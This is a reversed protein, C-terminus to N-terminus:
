GPASGWPLSGPSRSCYGSCQPERNIDCDRRAHQCRLLLVSKRSKGASETLAAGDRPVHTSIILSTCIPVDCAHRVDGNVARGAHEHDVALLHERDPERVRRRVIRQRRAALVGELLEHVRARRHDACARGLPREHADVMLDRGLLHDLVRGGRVAQVAPHPEARDRVQGTRRGVRLQQGLDDPCELIVRCEAGVLAHVLRAVGEAPRVPDSRCPEDLACVLSLASSGACGSTMM